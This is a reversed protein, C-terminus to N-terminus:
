FYCFKFKKVSIKWFKLQKEQKFNSHKYFKFEEM